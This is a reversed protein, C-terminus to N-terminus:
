GERMTVNDLGPKKVTVESASTGRSKGMVRCNGDKRTAGKM